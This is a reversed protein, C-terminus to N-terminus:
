AAEKESTANPSASYDVAAQLTKAWSQPRGRQLNEQTAIDRMFEALTLMESYRLDGIASFIAELKTEKTLQNDKPKIPTSLPKKQAKPRAAVHKRVAGLARIEKRLVSLHNHVARADSPTNSIVVIRTEGDHHLIIKNHKKGGGETMTVGHWTHLEQVTAEILEKSM